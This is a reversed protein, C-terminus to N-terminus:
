LEAPMGLPQPRLTGTARAVEELTPLEFSEEDAPADEPVSPPPAAFCDLRILQEDSCVFLLHHKQTFREGPPSFTDSVRDQRTCASKGETSM